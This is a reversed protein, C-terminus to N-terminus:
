EQAQLVKLGIQQHPGNVNVNEGPRLRGRYGGLREYQAAQVPPRREEVQQQRAIKLAATPGIIQESQVLPTECRLAAVRPVGLCVRSSWTGHRRGESDSGAVVSDEPDLGRLQGDPGPRAKPGRDGGDHLCEEEAPRPGLRPDYYPPMFLPVTPPAVAP